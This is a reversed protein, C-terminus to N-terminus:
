SDTRRLISRLRQDRDGEARYPSGLRVMIKILPWREQTPALGNSRDTPKAEARSADIVAMTFLGTGSIAPAVGRVSSLRLRFGVSM